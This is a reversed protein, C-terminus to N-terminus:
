PKKKKQVLRVICGAILNRDIKTFDIKLEDLIRKNKEFDKGFKDPFMEFLAEAKKELVKSRQKGM